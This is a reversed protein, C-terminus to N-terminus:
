SRKILKPKAGFAKRWHQGCYYRVDGDRPSKRATDKDLGVGCAYCNTKFVRPFQKRENDKKIINM